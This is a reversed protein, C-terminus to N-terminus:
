SLADEVAHVVEHAAEHAFMDPPGEACVVAIANTIASTAAAEDEVAVEHERLYDVDVIKTLRMVCAQGSGMPLSELDTTVISIDTDVGQTQTGSSSGGCGALACAALGVLAVAFGTRV